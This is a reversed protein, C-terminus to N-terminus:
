DVMAAVVVTFRFRLLLRALPGSREAARALAAVPAPLRRTQPVFFPRVAVRRFGAAELEGIVEDLDFQRPNLDFVLKRRTYSRAHAFFAARGAAYYLARFLTTADPRVRPVYTNLDGAEVDVDDGLRRRAEEVMAPTLDAGAYRLGQALLCSGLGGDGCALDLVLAGQELPEGLVRVVWARHRLYADADAYQHRSWGAAAREYQRAKGESTM